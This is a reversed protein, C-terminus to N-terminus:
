PSSLMKQLFWLFAHEFHKEFTVRIETAGLCNSISTWKASPFKGDYQKPVDQTAKDVM